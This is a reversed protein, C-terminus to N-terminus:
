MKKLYNLINTNWNFNKPLDKKEHYTGVLIQKKKRYKGSLIKNINKIFLFELERILRQYSNKFTLNKFVLSDHNKFNFKIGLLSYLHLKHAIKLLSLSLLHSTEPNFFKLLNLLLDSM